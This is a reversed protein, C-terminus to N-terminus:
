VAGRSSLVVRPTKFILKMDLWFSQNRIYEIDLKVMIDFDTSSRATVQWLGTMGPRANLRQFHWPQYMEIEYPIAPRPGVLSMEGKLVNVFQPLEDLSSRRLFRGLRTIRPDNTLKRVSPDGNKQMANMKAEDKNIFAAVFAQHITQDCKDRMTRFKYCPFTTREWYAHGNYKRQKAGIRTQIFIAPGRSDIRVMLALIILLPTLVLLVLSSILLDFARKFFLYATKSKTIPAGLYADLEPIYHLELNGSM